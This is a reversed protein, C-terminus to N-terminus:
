NNKNKNSKNESDNFIGALQELILLAYMSYAWWTHWWPPQITFTYEFPKSWVQAEGIAKVKFTHTGYPLNHYDAKTEATPQSWEKDIGEIQYSYQIKHPSAWDIASVHFTLHNLDYPLNLNIPYNSFVVVSDFSQSVTKGFALTKKYTTDALRNYDIFRQQIDIHSLSLNKPVETPLQFTNLDLMTVSNVSNGWWMRNKSDLLAKGFYKSKLGDAKSYQLWQFNSQGINKMGGKLVVLGTNDSGVWLNNKKDKIITNISIDPLENAMFLVPFNNEIDVGNKKVQIFTSTHALGDIGRRM